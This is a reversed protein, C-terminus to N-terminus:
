GFLLKHAKRALDPYSELSFDISSLEDMAVFKVSAVDDTPIIDRNTKLKAAFVNSLVDRMENSFDYDVTQSSQFVPTTYDEPDLDLEEKVERKIADELTEKLEVFGGPFDYQGKAPEVGREAILVKGEDNFLMIDVTPSANKYRLNHCGSCEWPQSKGKIYLAGCIHCYKM